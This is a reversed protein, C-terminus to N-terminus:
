DLTLRVGKRWERPIPYLLVSRVFKRLSFCPTGYIYQLVVALKHLMFRCATHLVDLLEGKSRRSESCGGCCTYNCFTGYYSGYGARARAPRRLNAVVVVPPPPVVDGDSNGLSVAYEVSLPACRAPQCSREGRRSAAVRGSLVPPGLKQSSLRSSSVVVLFPLCM